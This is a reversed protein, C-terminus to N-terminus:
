NNWHHKMTANTHDLSKKNKMMAAIENADHAMGMFPIPTTTSFGYIEPTDQEYALAQGQLSIDCKCINTYDDVSYMKLNMSKCSAGRRNPISSLLLFIGQTDLRLRLAYIYVIATYFHIGSMRAAIVEDQYCCQSKVLMIYVCGKSLNRKTLCM